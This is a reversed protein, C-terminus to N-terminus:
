SRKMEAAGDRLAGWPWATSLTPTALTDHDPHTGAAIFRFAVRIMPRRGEVKRNSFRNAYYLWCRWCPPHYAASGQGPMNRWRMSMSGM